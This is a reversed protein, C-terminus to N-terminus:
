NSARRARRLASWRSRREDYPRHYVELRWSMEEMVACVFEADAEPPSCWQEKLWPKIENKLVQRVTEDWVADVVVLVVLQEAM